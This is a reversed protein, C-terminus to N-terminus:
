CENPPCKLLFLQSELDMIDEKSLDKHSALLEEMVTKVVEDFDVEKEIIIDQQAKPVFDEIGKFDCSCDPLVNRWNGNMFSLMGENWLDAINDIASLIGLSSSQQSIKVM